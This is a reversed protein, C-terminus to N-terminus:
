CQPSNPNNVQELIPLFQSTYFMDINGMARSVCELGERFKENCASNVM